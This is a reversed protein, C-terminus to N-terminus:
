SIRALSVDSAAEDGARGDLLCRSRLEFRSLYDRWIEHINRLPLTTDLRYCGSARKPTENIRALLRTGLRIDIRPILQLGRNRDRPPRRRLPFRLSVQLVAKRHAPLARHRSFKPVCYVKHRLPSAAREWLRGIGIKLTLRWETSRRM